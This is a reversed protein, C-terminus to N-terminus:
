TTCIIPIRRRRIPKGNAPTERIIVEMEALSGDVTRWLNIDVNNGQFGRKNLLLGVAERLDNADM